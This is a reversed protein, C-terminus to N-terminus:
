YPNADNEAFDWGGVVRHGAGYGGGLAPHDYAIGSDIIAVTQGAGTLGYNGRVYSVDTWAQGANAQTSLASYSSLPQELSFIAHRNDNSGLLATLAQASLALREEFEEFPAARLSNRPTDDRLM